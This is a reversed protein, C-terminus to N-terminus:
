NHKILTNMNRFLRKCPVCVHVNFEANVAKIMEKPEEKPIVEVETQAVPASETLISTDFTMFHKNIREM